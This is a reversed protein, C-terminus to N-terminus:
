LRLAQCVLEWTEKGPEPRVERADPEMVEPVAVRRLEQQGADMGLDGLLPESVRRHCGRKIKVAMHGLGHLFIGGDTEVGSEATSYLGDGLRTSSSPLLIPLM